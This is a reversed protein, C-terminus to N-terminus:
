VRKKKLVSNLSFKNSKLVENIEDDIEIINIYSFEKKEIERKKNLDDILNQITKIGDGKIVCPTREYANIIENNFVNIRYERLSIYKEMIINNSVILAKEFAEAVEIENNLLSFVGKSGDSDKPKVVVPFGIEKAKQIAEDKSKIDFGDVVSLGADRLIAKAVEKDRALNLGIFSTFSTATTDLFIKNKCYGYQFINQNLQKYVINKKNAIYLFDKQNGTKPICALLLNFIDNIDKEFNKNEVGNLFNILTLFLKEHLQADIGLVPMNITVNNQNLELYINNFLPIKSTKIIAKYVTLIRNLIDINDDKLNKLSSIKFFKEMALDFEYLYKIKDKHNNIDLNISLSAQKIKNTYNKNHKISNIKILTDEM